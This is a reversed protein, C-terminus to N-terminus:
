QLYSMPKNKIQWEKVEKDIDLKFKNKILYAQVGDDILKTSDTNRMNNKPNIITLRHTTLLCGEKSGVVMNGESEIIVNGKTKIIVYGEREEIDDILNALKNLKKCFKILGM